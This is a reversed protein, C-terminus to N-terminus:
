MNCYLALLCVLTFCAVALVNAAQLYAESRKREIRLERELYLTYATKEM